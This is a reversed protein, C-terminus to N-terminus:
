ATSHRNNTTSYMINLKPSCHNNVRKVLQYSNETLSSAEVSVPANMHMLYHKQVNEVHHHVLIHNLTGHYVLGHIVTFNHAYAYAVNMNNKM